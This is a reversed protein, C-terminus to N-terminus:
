HAFDPSALKPARSSTPTHTQTSTLDHPTVALMHATAAPDVKAAEDM